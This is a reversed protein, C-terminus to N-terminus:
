WRADSLRFVVPAAATTAVPQGRLEAPRFRWEMVCQIAAADLEPISKVIRTKAVQGTQDIVIELEVVGQIGRNYADRPYRPNTVRLLAPPKDLQEPSVVGVDARNPATRTRSTACGSGGIIVLGSALITAALTTTM